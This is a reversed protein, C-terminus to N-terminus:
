VIIILRRQHETYISDIISKNKIVDYGHWDIKNEDISFFIEMNTARIVVLDIDKLILHANVLSEVSIRTKVFSYKTNLIDKIMEHKSNTNNDNYVSDTDVYGTNEKKM